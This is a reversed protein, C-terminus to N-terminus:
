IMLFVILTKYLKNCLAFNQDGHLTDWAQQFTNHFAVLFYLLKKITPLIPLPTSISLPYHDSWLPSFVNCCFPPFFDLGHM